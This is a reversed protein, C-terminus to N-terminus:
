FRQSGVYQDCVTHGTATCISCVADAVNIKKIETKSVSVSININSSAKKNRGCIGHVAYVTYQIDEGVQLM